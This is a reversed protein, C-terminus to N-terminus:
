AAFIQSAASGSGISQSSEPISPGVSKAVPEHMMMAWWTSRVTASTIMSGRGSGLGGTIRSMTTLVVSVVAVIEHFALSRVVPLM